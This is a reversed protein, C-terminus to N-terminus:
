EYFRDTQVGAGVSLLLVMLLGTVSIFNVTLLRELTVIYNFHLILHIYVSVTLLFAFVTFPM